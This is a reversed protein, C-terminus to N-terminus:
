LGKIFFSYVEKTLQAIKINEKQPKTEYDAWIRLKQLKLCVQYEKYKKEKKLIELLKQHKNSSTSNRFAENKEAFFHYIAYYLRGLIIRQLIEKNECSLLKNIKNLDKSALLYAFKNFEQSLEGHEGM